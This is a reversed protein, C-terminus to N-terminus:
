PLSRKSKEGERSPLLLVELQAPPCHWMQQWLTITFLLFEQPCSSIETVSQVRAALSRTKLLWCSSRCNCYGPYLGPARTSMSQERPVLTGRSIDKPLITHYLIIYYLIIYHLIIIYYLIIHYSVIYIYTLMIYSKRKSNYRSPEPLEM